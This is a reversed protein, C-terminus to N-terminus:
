LDIQTWPTQRPESSPTRLRAALARSVEIQGNADVRLVQQIGLARAIERWRNPGAVFIATSAADAATADAAIVTVASTHTAPRGTRPDLIHHIRQGAVVAFREYDGSTSVSEDGQLELWALPEDSRPSRIAVRWPLNKIDRGIARLNGGANVLANAVGRQKLQEIAADVAFGKGIAGFDLKLDARRSRVKDTDIVVDAFTPHNAAWANLQAETPVAQRPDRESRHFGWAEVMPAVAPDFFGNSLRFAEQSRRLLNAFASSATMSEGKAFAANLRVLEGDNAWPYWERGLREIEARATAIAQPDDVGVVDISVITGM